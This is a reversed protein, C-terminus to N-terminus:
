AVNKLVPKTLATQYVDIYADVMAAVSFGEAYQRLRDHLSTDQLLKVADRLKDILTHPQEM